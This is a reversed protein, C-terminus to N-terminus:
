ICTGITLSRYNESNQEPKRSDKILPSMIGVMMEDPTIGHILMSNFLLSLITSLRVSSLKFHNM